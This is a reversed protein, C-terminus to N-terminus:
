NKLQSNYNNYCNLKLLFGQKKLIPDFTCAKGSRAPIEHDSLGSLTQLLTSKGQKM